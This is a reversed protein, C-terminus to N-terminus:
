TDNKAAELQARYKTLADRLRKYAGGGEPTPNLDAAAQEVDRLSSMLDNIGEVMARQNRLREKSLKQTM